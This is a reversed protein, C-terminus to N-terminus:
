PKVRQLEIVVDAAKLSFESPRPKGVWQKDKWAGGVACLKLKDGDLEYVGLADGGKKKSENSRHDWIKPNATPDLEFTGAWLEKGDKDQAAYTGDARFVLRRAQKTAGEPQVSVMDWTGAFTELAKDAAKKKAADTKPEDARSLGIAATLLCVALLVKRM